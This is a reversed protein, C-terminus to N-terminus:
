WYLLMHSTRYYELPGGSEIKKLCLQERALQCLTRVPFYTVQLFQIEGTDPRGVVFREVAALDEDALRRLVKVAPVCM